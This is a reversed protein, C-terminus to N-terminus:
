NFQVVLGRCLYSLEWGTLGELEIPRPARVHAAAVDLDARNWLTAGVTLGIARPTPTASDTFPNYTALAPQLATLRATPRAAVGRFGAIGDTANGSRITRIEVGGDIELGFQDPAWSGVTLALGTAPIPVTANYTIAPLAVTTVSTLLGRGSFRVRVLEGPGVLFVPNAVCGNLKYLLGGAYGWLTFGRAVDLGTAMTYTASTSDVIVPAGFGAGYLLPDLPPVVPGATLYATGAGTLEAEIEFPVVQGRPIGPALPLLSGAVVGIRENPYEYQLGMQVWIRAAARIGNAGVTPTPDTMYDAERKALFGDLLIPTGDM